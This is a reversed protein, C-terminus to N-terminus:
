VEQVLQVVEALLDVVLVLHGDCRCTRPPALGLVLALRQSPHRGRHPRREEPQLRRDVLAKVQPAGPELGLGPDVVALQDRPWDLVVQSELTWRSKAVQRLRRQQFMTKLKTM